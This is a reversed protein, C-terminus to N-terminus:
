RRLCRQVAAALGAIRFPKELFGHFGEAEAGQADLLTTHGTTLLIPVAGRIRWLERALDRGSLRPMAVDTLVLDFTEAYSRFHVLAAEPDTFGTVRYGLQELTQRALNVVATEDDVLLIHQGQGRAQEALAAPPADAVGELAPFYVEFTSGKGLQSQVEIAADHTQAIGVAVALGLGVGYGAAKTTFFPEFIRQRTADDMGRGTDRVRLRVFRGPQTRGIVWSRPADFQVTDLSVQVRGARGDMAHGANTCLNLLIQQFGTPDALVPPCNEDVDIQIEVPNSVVARLLRVSDHLIPGLRTPRREPRQRRSFTLIQRVLDGARESTRIIEAACEQINGPTGPPLLLKILEANGLIATILNNFDHAIDGALTGLAELKRAQYLEQEMQAQALRARKSETIDQVVGVLRIPLGDEGREVDGIVRHDHASGDAWFVRYEVDYAARGEQALHLAARVRPADEPALMRFFLDRTPVCANPAFGFLPFTAESWSLTNRVFHVEFTGMGAMQLALRLESERRRRAEATQGHEVEERVLEANAQALQARFAEVQHIKDELKQFLRQNHQRLFVPEAAPDVLSPQASRTSQGAVAQVAALFVEPELPKTLFRDAGLSLALQADRPDTYTATYFIFPVQRLAENGRVERCLQFGDMVPMLVDSVIMDFAGGGLQELAERGDRVAVVTHGAGGLVKELLYRNEALDDAVLIKM